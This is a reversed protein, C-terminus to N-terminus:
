IRNSIFTIIHLSFHKLKSSIGSRIPNGAFQIHSRIYLHDTPPKVSKVFLYMLPLLHLEELQEKYPLKYDNLCVYTNPPEVNFM